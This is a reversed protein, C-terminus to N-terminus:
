ASQLDPEGLEGAAAEVEADGRAVVGPAYSAGTPAAATAVERYMLMYASTSGDGGYATAMESRLQASPLAPDTLTRPPPTPTLM